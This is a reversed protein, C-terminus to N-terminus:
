MTHNTKMHKVLKPLNQFMETYEYVKPMNPHIQRIMKHTKARQRINRADQYMHRSKTKRSLVHKAVNRMTLYIKCTEMCKKAYNPSNKTRSLSNQMNKTHKGCRSSYQYVEVCKDYKPVIKPYKTRKVCNPQNRLTKYM